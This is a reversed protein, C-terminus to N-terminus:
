RPGDLTAIRFQVTRGKPDALKRYVQRFARLAERFADDYEAGCSPCEQPTRSEQEGSKIHVRTECKGCPIVMDSLDSFDIALEKHVTM